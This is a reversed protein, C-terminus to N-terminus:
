CNVCSGGGVGRGCVVVPARGLAESPKGVNFTFM